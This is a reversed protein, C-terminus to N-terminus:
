VAAISNKVVSITNDSDKLRIAMPSMKERLARRRPQEMSGSAQAQRDPLCAQRM